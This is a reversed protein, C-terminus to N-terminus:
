ARNALVLFEARLSRDERFAGEMVSSIMLGETRIGRMEMCTHRGAGLVAVSNSKTSGVIEDAIDKVLREQLQLKHAHKHAIRAFKSLGLVRDGALYGVSIDCWFPLLHHECISWVRLGTVMVLQDIVVSEFVTNTNNDTYDIFEAWYEAYRRPTDRLGPRNPDEGIIVLLERALEEIRNTDAQSIM